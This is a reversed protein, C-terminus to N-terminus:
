DHPPGKRFLLRTIATAIVIIAAFLVVGDWLHGWTNADFRM